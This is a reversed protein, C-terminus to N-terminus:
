VLTAFPPLAPVPNTLGSSHSSLNRSSKLNRKRINEKQEQTLITGNEKACAEAARISEKIKEAKAGAVVKNNISSDTIKKLEEGLFSDLLSTIMGSAVAIAYDLNDAHNTLRECETSIADLQSQNSVIQSEIEELEQYISIQLESWDGKTSLESIPVAEYIIEASDTADQLRLLTVAEM